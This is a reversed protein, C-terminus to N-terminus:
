YLMGSRTRRFPVHVDEPPMEAPPPLPPLGSSSGAAGAIRRGDGGPPARPLRGLPLPMILVPREVLRLAARYVMEGLYTSKRGMLVALEDNTLRRRPLPLRGALLASIRPRLHLWSSHMGNGAFAASWDKEVLIAQVSRVVTGIWAGAPMIGLLNDGRAREQLEALMRKFSAFVHSDLPQCLYTLGAPVFCPHLGLRSCHLLVPAALHITASDMYLLIEAHPRKIRVARRIMTLLSNMITASVWGKTGVVWSLPAPLSALATKEARTLNKDNTLVFQPLVKQVEPDDCICGLLTSQGRRDRLPVRSYVSLNNKKHLMVVYGKRPQLQRYVPTEDINICVVQRGRFPEQWLWQVWQLFLAVQL